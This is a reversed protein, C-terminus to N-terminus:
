ASYRLLGLLTLADPIAAGAATNDFVCWASQGANRADILTQAVRRLRAEPYASRYMVPSGHLRLYCLAAPLPPLAAVRPDAAVYALRFRALMDAAATGFWSPHRPECAIPVATLERLCALFAAVSGADFALSPPLQLLLCGLKPGLHNVEGIFRALAEETGRLRKEHTIAKPVKVSFRFSEPVSGRWRAYTAPLHPRYFASNIEVASFVAAYRQLHSGERPFAPQVARALSWGACGIYPGAPTPTTSM